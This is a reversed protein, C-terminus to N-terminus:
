FAPGLCFKNGIVHDATAETFGDVIFVTTTPSGGNVAGNTWYPTMNPHASSPHGYTEIVIETDLWLKTSSDIVYISIRAGTMEAATLVLSYGSGEDVFDNTATGENAEDTMVIADAGADVANVRLDVGDVEVLDFHITFARGYGAILADSM